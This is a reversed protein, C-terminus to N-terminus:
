RGAACNDPRSTGCGPHQCIDFVHEDLSSGAHVIPDFIAMLRRTFTLPAKAPKAGGLAGLRKKRVESRDPLVKRELSMQEARREVAFLESSTKVRPMTAGLKGLIRGAELSLEM